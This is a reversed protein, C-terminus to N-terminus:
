VGRILTISVLAKSNGLLTFPCPFSVSAANSLRILIYAAFAFPSHLSTGRLVCACRKRWAFAECQISSPSLMTSTCNRSLCSCISVVIFYRSIVVSSFTFARAVSSFSVSFAMFFFHFSLCPLRTSKQPSCLDLLYFCFGFKRAYFIKSKPSKSM